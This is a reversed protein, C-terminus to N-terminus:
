PILEAYNCEVSGHVPNLLFHGTKFVRGDSRQVIVTIQENVLSAAPTTLALRVLDDAQIEEYAEGGMAADVVAMQVVTPEPAFIATSNQYEFHFTAAASFAFLKPVDPLLIDTMGTMNIGVGLLLITGDVETAGDTLNVGELLGVTMMCFMEPTVTLTFNQTATGGWGDSVQIDVPHTGVQTDASTWTLVGTEANLTMGDPATTLSFTLPDNDLDTADVDYQYTRNVIPPPTSTIVPSQNVGTWLLYSDDALVTAGVVLSVSLLGIMNKIYKVM